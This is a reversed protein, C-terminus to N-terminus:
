GVSTVQVVNGGDVAEELAELVAVPGLMSQETEDTEGTRFMHVFGEIGTLYMNEDNVITEDVRGKEGIATVHFGAYTEGILNMSAVRGSGFHMTAIHNDGIGRHINVEEADYGALRVLMDVQHIGYFFIGGWESHIDCPGTTTVSYLDGLAEIKEQLARFAAQKPLVSYSAVPVGLDQAQKLFARGEEVRYCFPKDIFLPIGAELLPQVSPLHDEAHRQDAVIGDVQGIFDAPTKVITPIEGRTSADQALEPTEGWVGVVQANPIRKEINITKAIAVTHSNEAGVIGIRLM